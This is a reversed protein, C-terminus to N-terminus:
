LSRIKKWVTGKKKRKYMMYIELNLKTLFEYSIEFNGITTGYHDAIINAFLEISPPDLDYMIIAYGNEYDEYPFPM